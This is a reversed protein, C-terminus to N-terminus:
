LLLPINLALPRASISLLTTQNGSGVGFEGADERGGPGQQSPLVRRRKATLENASVFAPVASDNEDTQDAKRKTTALSSVFDALDKSKPEEAAAEDDSETDLDSPLEPESAM